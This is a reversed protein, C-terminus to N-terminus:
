IFREINVKPNLPM